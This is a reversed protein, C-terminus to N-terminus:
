FNFKIFSLFLSLFDSTLHFFFVKNGLKVVSEATTKRENLKPFTSLITATYINMNHLIEGVSQEFQQITESRINRHM